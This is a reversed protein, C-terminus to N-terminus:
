ACSSKSVPRSLCESVIGFFGHCLDEAASIRPPPFLRGARLSRCSASVPPQMAMPSTGRPARTWALRARRGEV